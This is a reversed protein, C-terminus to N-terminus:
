ALMNSLCGIDFMALASGALVHLAVGRRLLLVVVFGLGLCFSVCSFGLLVYGRSLGARIWVGNQTL